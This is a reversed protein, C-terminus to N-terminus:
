ELYITKSQQKAKRKFAANMRICPPYKSQIKVPVKKESDCNNKLYGIEKKQQHNSTEYFDILFNFILVFCIIFSQFINPQTIDMFVIFSFADQFDVLTKNEITIKVSSSNRCVLIM